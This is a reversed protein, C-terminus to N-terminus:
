NSEQCIDATEENRPRNPVCVESEKMGEDSEREITTCGKNEVKSGNCASYSDGNKSMEAGRIENGGVLEIPSITEFAGSDIMGEVRVFEYEDNVNMANISKDTM